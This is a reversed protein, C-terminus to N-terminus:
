KTTEKSKFIQIAFSKKLTMPIFESTEYMFLSTDNFFKSTKYIIENTDSMFKFTDLIVLSAHYMFM